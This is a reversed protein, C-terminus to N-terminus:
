KEETGSIQPAFPIRRPVGAKTKDMAGDYQGGKLLLTDGPVVPSTASFATALDLPKEKSGDGQPTGDPAVWVEGAPLAQAWIWATAVLALLVNTQRYRRM